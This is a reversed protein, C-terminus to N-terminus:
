LHTMLVDYTQAISPSPLLLDLKKGRMKFSAALLHAATSWAPLQFTRSIDCRFICESSSQWHEGTHLAAEQLGTSLARARSGLQASERGVGQEALWTSARRLRYKLHKRDQLNFNGM